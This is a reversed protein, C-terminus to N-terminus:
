NRTNILFPRIKLCLCTPWGSFGKKLSFYLSLGRTDSHPRAEMYAIFARRKDQELPDVRYKEAPTIKELCSQVRLAQQHSTEVGLKFANDYSMEGKQRIIESVEQCTEPSIEGYECLNEPVEAIETM